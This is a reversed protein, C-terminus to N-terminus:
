FSNLINSCHVVSVAIHCWSPAMWNEDSCRVPPSVYRLCTCCVLGMSSHILESHLVNFIPIPFSVYHLTIKVLLTEMFAKAYSTVFTLPLTAQGLQKVNPLFTVLCLCPCLTHMDHMNHASVKYINFPSVVLKEQGLKKRHLLFSGRM